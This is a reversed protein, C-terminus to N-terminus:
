VVLGRLPPAWSARLPGPARAGSGSHHTALFATERPRGLGPSPRAASARTVGGMRPRPQGSRGVERGRRGGRCTNVSGGYRHRTRARMPAPGKRTLRELERTARQAQRDLTTGYRLILDCQKAPPLSRAARLAELARQERQQAERKRCEVKAQRKTLLTLLQDSAKERAPSDRDAARVKKSLRQVHKVFARGFPDVLDDATHASARGDTEVEGIAKSLRREFNAIGLSTTWLEDLAAERDCLDDGENPLCCDDDDELMALLQRARARRALGLTDVSAIIAGEIEGAEARAARRRRWLIEFLRETWMRQLPTQPDWSKFLRQRERKMVKLSEDGIVLQKAWV